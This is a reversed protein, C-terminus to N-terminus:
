GVINGVKYGLLKFVNQMFAFPLVYWKGQQLLYKAEARVYKFGEGEAIGFTDLLWKEQKHFKGIEKNRRFQEILSYDHAHYVKAEACYVTKYGAILLKGAVYTDEGFNVHKPFGGNELLLTKKYAAFSDSLFVTKIGRKLRDDFTNIRSIEPYNFLRAFSGLLGTNPYPLQRGYAAAIKNDSNFSDVIREVSFDDVLQADQTMFVVIETDVKELAYQRTKGHGFDKRDIVEIDFGYNKSIEVTKDISSSDVVLVKVINATQKKIMEAFQVFGDGANCTLVIISVPLDM